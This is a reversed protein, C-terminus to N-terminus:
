TRATGRVVSNRQDDWEDATDEEVSNTLMELRRRVLLQVNREDLVLVSALDLPIFAAELADKDISVPSHFPEHISGSAPERITQPGVIFPNLNEAADTWKTSFGEEPCAPLLMLARERLPSTQAGWGLVEERIGPSGDVLARCRVEIAPASVEAFRRCASKRRRTGLSQFNWIGATEAWARQDLAQFDGLEWREISERILRTVPGGLSRLCETRLRGAADALTLLEQLVEQRGGDTQMRARVCRDCLGIEHLYWGKEDPVDMPQGLERSWQVQADIVPDSVQTPRAGGEYEIRTQRRCDGCWFIKGRVLLWSM